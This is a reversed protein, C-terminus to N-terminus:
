RWFHWIEVIQDWDSGGQALDSKWAGTCVYYCDGYPQSRKRSLDRYLKIVCHSGFIDSHAGTKCWILFIHAKLFRYMLSEFCVDVFGWKSKVFVIMWKSSFGIQFFSHLTLIYTLQYPHTNDKFIWKLPLYNWGTFFFIDRM